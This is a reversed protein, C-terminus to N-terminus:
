LRENKENELKSYPNSISSIKTLFANRTLAPKSIPETDSNTQANRKRIHM